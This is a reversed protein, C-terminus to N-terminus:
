SVLRFFFFSSTFILFFFYGEINETLGLKVPVHKYFLPNGTNEKARESVVGGKRQLALEPEFTITLIYYDLKGDKNEDRTWRHDHWTSTGTWRSVKQCKGSVDAYLVTGDIREFFWHEAMHKGIADVQDKKRELSELEIRFERTSSSMARSVGRIWEAEFRLPEDNEWLWWDTHRITLTLQRPHLGPTSLLVALGGQEVRYMQAFVHLSEIEIKDQSLQRTIEALLQQLEPISHRENYGPPARNTASLWHTQERLIFPLFWTERYIARCTRLLETSTKRPAFYSPRTFCTDTNYLADTDEYDSLALTFIKSRIEPPFLSLLPSEEQSDVEKSLLRQHLPVDSTSQSPASNRLGPRLSYRSRRQGRSFLLNMKPSHFLARTDHIM